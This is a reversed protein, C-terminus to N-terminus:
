ELPYRYAKKSSEVKKYLTTVNHKINCTEINEEHTRIEDEIDLSNCKFCYVYYKGNWTYNPDIQSLTNASINSGTLKLLVRTKNKKTLIEETQFTASPDNCLVNETIPKIFYNYIEMFSPNRIKNQMNSTIITNSQNYTDISVSHSTLIYDPFPMQSTDLYENKVPESDNM